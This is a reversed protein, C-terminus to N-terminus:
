GFKTKIVCGPCEDPIRLARDYISPYIMGCPKGTTGTCIFGLFQGTTIDYADDLHYVKMMDLEVETLFLRGNYYLQLKSFDWPSETM